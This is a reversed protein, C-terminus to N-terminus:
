LDGPPGRAALHVAGLRADRQILTNDSNRGRVGQPADLNYRRELEVGAIEEVIDVLENITVLEHAASTSRSSPHRERHDDAHGHVCDDIYM